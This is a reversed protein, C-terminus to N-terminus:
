FDPSSGAYSNSSSNSNSSSSSYSSVCGVDVKPGNQCIEFDWLFKLIASKSVRIKAIHEDTGLSAISTNFISIYAHSGYFFIIFFSSFPWSEQPLEAEKALNPRRYFGVEISSHYKPTKIVVMFFYGSIESNELDLWM